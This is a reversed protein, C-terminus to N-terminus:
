SFSLANSELVVGAAATALVTWFAMDLLAAASSVMGM